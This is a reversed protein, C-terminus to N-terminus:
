EEAGEWPEPLERWALVENYVHFYPFPSGWEKYGMGRGGLAVECYSTIDVNLEGDINSKYTILVERDDEPLDGEAVVHWKQEKAEVLPCDVERGDGFNVFHGTFPCFGTTMDRHRYLCDCVGCSRPMEMDIQVPM